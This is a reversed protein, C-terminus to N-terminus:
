SYLQASELWNTWCLSMAFHAKELKDEQDLSCGQAEVKASRKESVVAAVAQIAAIAFSMFGRMFFVENLSSSRDLETTNDAANKGGVGGGGGSKVSKRGGVIHCTTKRGRSFSATTSATTSTASGGPGSYTSGSEVSGEEEEDCDRRRRKLLSSDEEAGPSDSEGSISGNDVEAGVDAAAGLEPSSSAAEDPFMAAVYVALESALAPERQLLLRVDRFLAEPEKWPNRSLCFEVLHEVAPALGSANVGLTERLLNSRKIKGDRDSGSSSSDGLPAHLPSVMAGSAIATARPGFYRTAADWRLTLMEKEADVQELSRRRKAERNESQRMPRLFQEGENDNNDMTSYGGQQSSDEDSDPDDFGSPPTTPRFIMANNNTTNSSNSNSGVNVAAGAATAAVIRQSNLSQQLQQLHQAFPSSAVRKRQLLSLLDPRNLQFAEHIYVFSSRANNAKRFSYFNLQRVLSQFRRHRFFKPLVERELRAPDKVEFSIGDTPSPPPPPASLTPFPPSHTKQALLFESYTM